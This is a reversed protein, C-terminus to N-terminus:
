ARPYAQYLHGQNCPSRTVVRRGLYALGFTWCLVRLTRSSVFTSSDIDLANISGVHLLKRVLVQRLHVPQFVNRAKAFTSYQIRSEVAHGSLSTRSVANLRSPRLLHRYFRPVLLTREWSSQLWCPYNWVNRWLACLQRLVGDHMMTSTSKWTSTCLTTFHTEVDKEALTPMIHPSVEADTHAELLIAFCAYPLTLIMVSGRSALHTHAYEIDYLSFRELARLRFYYYWLSTGPCRLRLYVYIIWQM